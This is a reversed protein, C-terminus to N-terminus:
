PIIGSFRTKYTEGILMENFSDVTRILHLCRIWLSKFRKQFLNLEMM